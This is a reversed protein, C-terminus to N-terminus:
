KRFQFLHQFLSVDNDKRIALEPASELTVLVNGPIVSAVNPIEGSSVEPAPEQTRVLSRETIM